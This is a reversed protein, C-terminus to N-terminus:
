ISYIQGTNHRGCGGGTRRRQDALDARDVVEFGKDTLRWHPRSLLKDHATPTPQHVRQRVLGRLRWRTTSFKALRRVPRGVPRRQRHVPFDALSRARHVRASLQAPNEGNRQIANPSPLLCFAGVLGSLREEKHRVHRGRSNRYDVTLGGSQMRVVLDDLDGYSKVLRIIAAVLQAEEVKVDAQARWAARDIRKCLPYVANWHFCEYALAQIDFPNLAKDGSRCSDDGM